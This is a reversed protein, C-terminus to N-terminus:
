EAGGQLEDIIVLYGDMLIYPERYEFLYTHGKKLGQPLEWLAYVSGDDLEVIKRVSGSLGGQGEYEIDVVTAEFQESQYVFYGAIYATIILVFAIMAAWLVGKTSEM